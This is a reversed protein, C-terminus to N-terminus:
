STRLDALPIEYRLLLHLTYFGHITICRRFEEVSGRQAKHLSHATGQPGIMSRTCKSLMLPLDPGRAQKPEM